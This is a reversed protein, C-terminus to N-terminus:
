IIDRATGTWHFELDTKIIQSSILLEQALVAARKGSRPDIFDPFIEAVPVAMHAYEWLQEDLQARDFILPDLDMTRPSNPDQTRVRGLLNEIPRLIENRLQNLSYSTSVLVAANLFDPGPSGVAHTKWIGSLATITVMRSLLYLSSRINEGPSINTGIGIVVQHDQNNETESL